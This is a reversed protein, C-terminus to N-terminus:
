RLGVSAVRYHKWNDLSHELLESVIGRRGWIPSARVPSRRPPPSRSQRLRPPPRPCVGRSRWWPRPVPRAAALRPSRGAAPATRMTAERQDLSLPGRAEVLTLLGLILVLNHEFGGNTVWVGNKWHVTRIATIMTGIAAGRRAAHCLGRRATRRRGAESSGRPPRTEGVRASPGLSEFDAATKDIGGGGFWGFLKQTGHGIFLGGVITRAAFRGLKM